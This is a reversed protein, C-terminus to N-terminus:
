HAGHHADHDSHDHMESSPPANSGADRANMARVPFEVEITGAKEFQLTARFREGDHVASKLGMIMLHYGGPKLEVSGGAPIELGKPLGRMIMIGDNMAMEHVEIASGIPTTGSLLRDPTSGTNTIRLYGGAVPAGNPTARSWPQSVVLPGAPKDSAPMDGAIKLKPEWTATGKECTQLVPFALPHALDPALTAVFIFEDYEDEAVRGGSWSISNVGESIAKGHETYPKAYAARTTDLKWGAKPMPKVSFLGDPMTVRVGTTPSGECGHPLRLVGKWQAGPSATATEFTMHARAPSAFAIMAVLAGLVPTKLQTNM